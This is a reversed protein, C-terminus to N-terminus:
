GFGGRLVWFIKLFGFVGLDCPSLRDPRVQGRLALRWGGPLVLGCGFGLTSPMM